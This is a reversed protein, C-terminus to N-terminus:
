IKLTVLVIDLNNQRVDNAYHIVLLKSLYLFVYVEEHFTPNKKKLYTLVNTYNYIQFYILYM